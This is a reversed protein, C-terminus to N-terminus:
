NAPRTLIHQAYFRAWDPPPNLKQREAEASVLSRQLDNREFSRGLLKALRPVLYEAYWAAWDPDDGDTALFAQHHARGTEQFLQELKALREGRDM